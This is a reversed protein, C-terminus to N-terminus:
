QGEVLRLIEAVRRQLLERQADSRLERMLYAEYDEGACANQLLCLNGMIVGTPECEYGMRCAAVQWATSALEGTMLGEAADGPTLTYNNVLTSGMAFVAAPDNSDLVDELLQAAVAADVKRQSLANDTLRAALDGNEAAQAYWGRIIQMPVIAGGEVAGCKALRETAMQELFPLHTPDRMTTRNFDLGKIFAERDLNVFFCADYTDALLRQAVADGAKARRKLDEFGKVRASEASTGKTTHTLAGDARADSSASQQAAKVAVSPSEVPAGPVNPWLVFGVLVAVVGVGLWVWAGRSRAGLGKTM